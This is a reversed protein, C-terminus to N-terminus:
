YSLLIKSNIVRAGKYLNRRKTKKKVNLINFTCILVKKSVAILCFLALFRDSILM